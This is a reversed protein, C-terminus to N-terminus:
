LPKLNWGPLSSCAKRGRTKYGGDDCGSYLSEQHWGLAKLKRFVKHTGNGTRRITRTWERRQFIARGNIQINARMARFAVRAQANEAHFHHISQPFFAIQEVRRAFDRERFVILGVSGSCSREM